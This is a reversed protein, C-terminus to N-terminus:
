NDGGNNVTSESFVVALNAVSAFSKWLVAFILLTPRHPSSM